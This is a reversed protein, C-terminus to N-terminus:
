AKRAPIDIKTEEIQLPLQLTWPSAIFLSVPALDSPRFVVATITIRSYTHSCFRYSSNIIIITPSNHTSIIIYLYMYSHFYLVPFPLLRLLRFHFINLFYYTCSYYSSDACKNPQGLCPLGLCKEAEMQLCEDGAGKGDISMPKSNKSEM